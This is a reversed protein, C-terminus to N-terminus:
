QSTSTSAYISVGKQFAHYGALLFLCSVDMKLASNVINVFESSLTGGLKNVCGSFM